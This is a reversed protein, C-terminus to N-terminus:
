CGRRTWWSCIAMSSGSRDGPGAHIRGTKPDTDGVALRSWTGDADWRFGHAYALKAASSARTRVEITAAQAAKLTPTM